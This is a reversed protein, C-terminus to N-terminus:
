AEKLKENSKKKHEMYFIAISFIGYDLGFAGQLFIFQYSILGNQILPEVDPLALLFAMWYIITTVLFITGTAKAKKEAPEKGIPIYAENLINYLGLALVGITMVVLALVSATVRVWAEPFLLDYIFYAILQISVVRVFLRNGTGRVLEQMEDFHDTNYKQAPIAFLLCVGVVIGLLIIMFLRDM